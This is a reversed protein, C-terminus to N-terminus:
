GRFGRWVALLTPLWEIVNRKRSALLWGGVGVAALVWWRNREGISRAVTWRQHLQSCEVGIVQRHLEAQAVLSQKRAALDKM